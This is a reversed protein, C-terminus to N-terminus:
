AIFATIALFCATFSMLFLRVDDMNWAREDRTPEAEIDTAAQPLGRRFNHSEALANHSTNQAM